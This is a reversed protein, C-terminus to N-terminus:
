YRGFGTGLVVSWTGSNMSPLKNMAKDLHYYFAAAKLEVMLPDSTTDYYENNM